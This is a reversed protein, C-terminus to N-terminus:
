HTISGNSQKSGRTQCTKIIKTRNKNNGNLGCYM